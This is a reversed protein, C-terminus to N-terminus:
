PVRTLWPRLDILDSGSAALKAALEPTLAVAEAIARGDEVERLYVGTAPDEMLPALVDDSVQRAREQDAITSRGPAVVTCLNGTYRARLERRAARPDGNVVEVVLVQLFRPTGTQAPTMGLRLPHFQEPHQSLYERVATEDMPGAQWDGPPAPCPVGRELPGFPDQESLKAASQSTVTLGGDRWVGRLTLNAWHETAPDLGTVPVGFHCPQTEPASGGPVPAIACFRAPVGPLIRAYGTAEVTDGDRVVEARPAPAAPSITVFPEEAAPNSASGGSPSGSPWLVVAGVSIVVVAAAVAGVRWRREVGFRELDVEPPPPQAERWERGAERLMEDVPDGM